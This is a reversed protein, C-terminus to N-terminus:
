IIKYINNKPIAGERLIKPEKGTIDVITSPLSYELRGSDIYLDVQDGLQSFAEKITYTPPHGSLNASTTVLPIEIIDFLLQLFPHSSLRIAVKDSGGLLTKPLRHSAEFLITLPGPWFKDILLVAREPIYKVWKSLHDKKGILIPLPKQYSRQKIIFIDKIGKEHTALTGLGYVTETPYVVIGGKQLIRVTLEINSKSLGKDFRIIKM